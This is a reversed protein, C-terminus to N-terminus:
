EAPPEIVQGEPCLTVDGTEQNVKLSPYTESYNNDVGSEFSIPFSYLKQSSDNKLYTINLRCDICSTVNNIILTWSGDAATTATIAYSDFSITAGEIPVEDCNFLNGSLNYNATDIHKRKSCSFVFVIELVLLFKFM